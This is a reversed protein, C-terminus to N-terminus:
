YSLLYSLREYIKECEATIDAINLENKMENLFNLDRELEREDM